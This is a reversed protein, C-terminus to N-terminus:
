LLDYFNDFSSSVVGNLEKPPVDEASVSNAAAQATEDGENDPRRKNVFSRRRRHDGRGSHPRRLASDVQGLSEHVIDSEEEADAAPIFYFPTFHNAGAGDVNTTAPTRAAPIVDNVVPFGAQSRKRIRERIARSARGHGHQHMGSVTAVLTEVTAMLRDVKDDVKQVVARVAPMMEDSIAAVRVDMQMSNDRADKEDFTQAFAREKTELRRTAAPGMPVSFGRMKQKKGFFLVKCREPLCPKFM